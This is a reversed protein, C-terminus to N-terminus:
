DWLCSQRRCSSRVCRCGDGFVIHRRCSSRVCERIGCTLDCECGWWCECGLFCSLAVSLSASADCAKANAFASVGWLCSRVRVGMLVIASENWLYSRMRMGGASVNGFARDCGWGWWCECGLLAIASELEVFVIAGVDMGM